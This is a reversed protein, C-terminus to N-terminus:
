ECIHKCPGFLLEQYLKYTKTFMAEFTFHAEFDKRNQAGIKERLPKDGILKELAACLAKVDKRGVLYGNKENHIAVSVGGINSAIVPLSSRMAELISRPFGEWNSILLFIDMEFLLADVDDREGLFNIKDKLGLEAARTMYHEILPGKGILQMQWNNNQLGSLAQFLTEHDKQESFRAVMVLQVKDKDMIPPRNKLPTPMCDRMGNHIVIQKKESAVKYKLALNKDQQSVTIIKTCFPSLIKEILVYLKRQKEPVGSAFAWGHATFIAKKRALFCAARGVVGAKSSHLSVLDPAIRRLLFALKIAAKLDKIPSIERVLSTFIHVEINKARLQEVLLGDEGTIVVPEDDKAKLALALDRVHIQAGGIEDAKTIIYCIKM